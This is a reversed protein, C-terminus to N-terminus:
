LIEKNSNKRVTDFDYETTIVGNHFVTQMVSGMIGSGEVTKFGHITHTLDLRGAKSAKSPDTKPTKQVRVTESGVVVESVKYAFRQTDRNIKQLLGGGMGFALNAASFGKDMSKKIIERIVDENDIGDGQIVRVNNLLKYGNKTRTSKFKSDLLELCNVVVESPKGSDPRIVVTAGNELVATRLSGGWINEVANYLDYSDSVCAIIKGPGGFQALMNAYAAEEQDKGWSIVTSHEMAPISFAPMKPCNYYKMAAWVGPVTDSGMFNVVHAMGGLEASEQSSVGRSGFDHLKFPLEAEPNHCSEKLFGHIMQKVSWSLTAVTTPYWVRLLQTEVFSPLWFYKPDTSEVTMLVNHTPVVLGEPVARIKIPLMGKHDNVIGMWGNIDFPLGHKTAFDNAEEVDEKTIPTTFYKKLIYQLGFFVTRDYLGGRSELYCFMSKTNPPYQFAHSFKYSDVDLIFNKM